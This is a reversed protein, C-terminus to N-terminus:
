ELPGAASPPVPSHSPTCTCEKQDKLNDLLLDFEGSDELAQRHVQAGSKIVQTLFVVQRGLSRSSNVAAIATQDGAEYMKQLSNKQVKNGTWGAGGLYSEWLVGSTPLCGMMVAHAILFALTMEQGSFIHCGQAIPGIVKWSKTLIPKDSAAWLSNGLRDIFAKLQAPIGLHYVPVSYIIADAAVWLDRLEQFDDEITCEEERGCRFCSICPSITKGALTYIQSDVPSTERAGELAQDLLFRSNGKARASGCIGLLCIKNVGEKVQKGMM